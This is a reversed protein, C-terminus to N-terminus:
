EHSEHWANSSAYCRKTTVALSAIMMAKQTISFSFLLWRFTENKKEMEDRTKLEVRIKDQYTACREHTFVYLWRMENKFQCHCTLQSFSEDSREKPPLYQRFVVLLTSGHSRRSIADIIFAVCVIFLPSTKKRRRKCRKNKDIRATKNNRSEETKWEVNISFDHWKERCCILFLHFFFFFVCIILVVATKSAENIWAIKIRKRETEKWRMFIEDFFSFFVARNENTAVTSFALFTHCSRTTSPISHFDSPKLGHAKTTFASFIPVFSHIWVLTLLM